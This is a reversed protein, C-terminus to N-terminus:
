VHNRQELVARVDAHCAILQDYRLLFVGDGGYEFDLWLFPVAPLLNQLHEASEGVEMILVARPNMFGPSAELIELVLNLGDEGSVLAGFPEALYEPPLNEYVAQSVYPPNSVILDYKRGELRSFLDSQLLKVRDGLEHKEVNRAAVALAQQSVDVADVMFGPLHAAMAIALCGSGTCMDLLKGSRELDLWPSFKEVILEAIPSRPVLSDPTVEFELGCFRASGTLYALPVREGIRRALLSQLTSVQSSDLEVNWDEFSGDLPQGLVHLLMWAAEDGANDTGHGFFLGANEM